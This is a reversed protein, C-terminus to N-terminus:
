IISFNLYTPKSKAKKNALEVVESITEANIKFYKKWQAFTKTKIVESQWGESDIAHKKITIENANNM